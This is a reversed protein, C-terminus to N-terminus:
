SGESASYIGIREKGELHQQFVEQTLDKKVSEGRPGKMKVFCDVRGAPFLSQFIQADIM